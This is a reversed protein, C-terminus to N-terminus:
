VHARGIELTVVPDHELLLIVDGISGRIRAQVLEHQLAHAREYGIRGLWYATIARTM